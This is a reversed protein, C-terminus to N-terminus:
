AAGPNKYIWRYDLIKAGTDLRVKYEIGDVDFGEKQDLQPGQEGQLYMLAITDVAATDAAVYWANGVLSPDSKVELYSFPNVTSFTIPDISTTLQIAATKLAPGVILYRARLRLYNPRSDPGGRGQQGELAAVAASLSTIDLATGTGALNGHNAHFLTLGDSMTPNGVFQGVILDSILNRAQLTWMRPLNQLAGLDDNILAERTIGFKRGYKKLALSEQSDSITGSKYEGHEKIELLQPGQSLGVHTLAKYDTMAQPQTLFQWDAPQGEFYTTLTKKTGATIINGFDSTTHLARQVIESKSFYDPRVGNMRLVERCMDLMTSSRFRQSLETPKHLDPALRVSFHEEMARLATTKEDVGGAVIPSVHNAKSRTAMEDIIMERATEISKGQDILTDAFTRDLGAKEVASRIDSGRKREAEVARAGEEKLARTHDAERQAREAELKAQEIPDMKTERSKTIIECNNKPEDASRSQSKADFPVLVYSIEYPEWDEARLIPTDGERGVETMKYISYGVSLNRIVGSMIDKVFGQVEERESFKLRARGEGNEIWADEVVGLGASLGGYRNHSDLVSAGSKLRDLRVHKPDMSLEEYYSGDWGSRLGRAGVSWVVEITRAEPNATKIEVLARTSEKPVQVTRVVM